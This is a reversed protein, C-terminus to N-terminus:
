WLDGIFPVEMFPMYDQWGVFFSFCFHIFPASLFSLALYTPIERGEMGFYLPPLFITVLAPTTYYIWWPWGFNQGFKAFLMGGVIVVLGIKAISSPSVASARRRLVFRLLLTFVLFSAVVFVSFRLWESM